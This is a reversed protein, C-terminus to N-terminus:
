KAPKVNKPLASSFKATEAFFRGNRMHGEISVTMYQMIQDLTAPKGDLFFKTNADYKVEVQNPIVDEGVHEQKSVMWLSVNPRASILTGTFARYDPDAPNTAKIDSGGGHNRQTGNCGPLMM